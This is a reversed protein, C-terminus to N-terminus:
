VGRLECKRVFRSALKSFEEMQGAGYPRLEQYSPDLTQGPRFQQLAWLRAGRIWKGIAVIDDKGILGPVVTTRFEYEVGSDLLIRVSKRIDDVEVEAGVVEPYRDPSAKLDMAIYDVLGGRVLDQLVDPNTGNTDVKILFGDEKIKSLIEPLEGSLTPEGGTACIGDLMGRRSRLHGLVEETSIDPLQDHDLVLKPNYCYPCRFNCGGFFLISVIKGPYDLLSTKQLGKIGV